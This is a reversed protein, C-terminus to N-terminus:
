KSSHLQWQPSHQGMDSKGMEKIHLALLIPVLGVVVVFEINWCSVSGNIISSPLWHRNIRQSWPSGPWRWWWDGKLPSNSCFYSWVHLVILQLCFYAHHLWPRFWRPARHCEVSACKMPWTWCTREQWCNGTNRWRSVLTHRTIVIDIAM